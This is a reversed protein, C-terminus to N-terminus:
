NSFTAPDFEDDGPDCQSFDPVYVWTSADPAQEREFSCVFDAGSKEGDDDLDIVFEIRYLALQDIAGRREGLANGGMQFAGDTPLRQTPAEGGVEVRPTWRFFARTQLEKSEDNDDLRIARVWMKFTGFLDANMKVDDPFVFQFVAGTSTADKVSQFPTTHTFTMEGNPCIPRTWQHDIPDDDDNIGNFGPPTSDAWFALESSGGPLLQPVVLHLDPDDLPSLVMIAEINRETPDVTVAFFMDQNVHPTLGVFQLDLDTGRATEGRPDCADLDVALDDLDGVQASCAGLILSLFLLTSRM